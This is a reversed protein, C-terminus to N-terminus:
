VPSFQLLKEIRYGVTYTGPLNWRAAIVQMAIEAGLGDHLAEIDNNLWAQLVAGSPDIEVVAVDGTASDPIHKRYERGNIIVFGECAIAIPQLPAGPAVSAPPKPTEVSPDDRWRRVRSVTTGLQEALNAMGGARDIAAWRDLWTKDVGPPADDRRGRRAITTESLAPKDTHQGIRRAMERRARRRAEARRFREPVRQWGRGMEQYRREELVRLGDQFGQGQEPAGPGSGGLKWFKM